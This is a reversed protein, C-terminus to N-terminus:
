PAAGTPTSQSGRAGPLRPKVVPIGDIDHPLTALLGAVTEDPSSVYLKFQGVEGPKCSFSPNIAVSHPMDTLIRDLKGKAALAKAYDHPSLKNQTVGM